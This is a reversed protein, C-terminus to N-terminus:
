YLNISNFQISNSPAIFPRFVEEIQYSSLDLYMVNYEWDENLYVIIM